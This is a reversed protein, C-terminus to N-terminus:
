ATEKAAPPEAAPALTPRAHLADCAEGCAPCPLPQSIDALWEAPVLFTHGCTICFTKHETTM